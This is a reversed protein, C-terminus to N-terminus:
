TTAQVDLMGVGQMGELTKLGRLAHLSDMVVHVIRKGINSHMRAAGLMGGMIEEFGKPWNVRRKAHVRRSRVGKFTQLMMLLKCAGLECSPM